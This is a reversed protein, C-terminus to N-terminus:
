LSSALEAMEALEAIRRLEALGRLKLIGMSMHHSAGEVLVLRTILAKIISLCCGQVGASIARVAGERCRKGLSDISVM